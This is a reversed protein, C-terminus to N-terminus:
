HGAYHAELYDQVIIAAAESDIDAKAFSKKATQLRQEAMVSTLSEDQFAIPLKLQELTDHAFQRVMTSQRTEEGNSNRPLGVVLQQAGHERILESLRSVLKADDVALTVVPMGLRGISDGVAVGLRKTGVDLGLAVIRTEVM